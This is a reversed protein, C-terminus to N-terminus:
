FGIIWTVEAEIEDTITLPEFDVYAMALNDYPSNIDADSLFLGAESLPVEALSAYSIDGDMGRIFTKLSVSFDTPYGVFFKPMASDSLWVDGPDASDYPDDTGSFRVPRELTTIAPAVPYLHSYENGTTANPDEGAPYATTVPAPVTGQQIGGVGFQMYKLRLSTAPVDPGYSNLALMQALYERGADLWVNHGEWRYFLKGRRRARIFVNNKM